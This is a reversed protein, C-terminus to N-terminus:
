FLRGKREILDVMFKTGDIKDNILKTRKVQYEEKLHKNELLEVAKRLANEQSVIDDRFNFVMGYKEEEEDTYGRGAFDIFIAPTGLIACESAM